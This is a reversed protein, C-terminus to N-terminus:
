ASFMLFEFAKQVKTWDPNSVELATSGKSIPERAHIQLFNEGQGPSNPFRRDLNRDPIKSSPKRALSGLAALQRGTDYWLLKPSWKTKLKNIVYIKQFHKYPLLIEINQYFSDM